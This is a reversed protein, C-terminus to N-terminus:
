CCIMGSTGSCSWTRTELFTSTSYTSSTISLFMLLELKLQRTDGSANLIKMVSALNWARLVHLRLEHLKHQPDVLDVHEETLQPFSRGGNAFRRTAITGGAGPCSGPLFGSVRIGKGKISIGSTRRRTSRARSVRRPRRRWRRRGSRRRRRWMSGYKAPIRRQGTMLSMSKIGKKKTHKKQVSFRTKERAREKDFCDTKRFHKKQRFDQPPLPPPPLPPLIKPHARVGVHSSSSKRQQM